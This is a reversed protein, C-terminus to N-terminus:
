SERIEDMTFGRQLLFRILKDQPDHKRQEKLKNLWGFYVKEDLNKLAENIESEPLQKSQLGAEIKRRGWGQYTVKDHVYAACYRRDDVYGNERLFDIVADQLNRDADWEYLKRRVDAEAREAVACYRAAKSRLEDVSWEKKDM